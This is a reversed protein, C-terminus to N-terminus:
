LVIHKHVGTYFYLLNLNGCKELAAKKIILQDQFTMLAASSVKGIPAPFEIDYAVMAQDGSCFKARVMLTKFMSIAKAITGLVAQKGIDEALPAILKLELHLYKNYLYSINRAAMAAFYAEAISM